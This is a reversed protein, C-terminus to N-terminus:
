RTSSRQFELDMGIASTFGGELNVRFIHFRGDSRLSAKGTEDMSQANKFVGTEVSKGIAAVQISPEVSEVIPRASSVLCRNGPTLEKRGTELTSDLPTGTFDCLRNTANYAGIRRAGYSVIRSDFSSLGPTDINEPDAATAPSDLNVGIPASECLIEAALDGHSWRDLGWDYIILKNPMGSVNGSGPYLVWIRQNDPDAVASVRDFYASDVDSLFSQDVKGRGIARSASYDFLNFGDESLYFVQRGFPICLGPILAGRLPDVKNLQFVVDGGSYDARWISREQFIAGVESGSTVAQVAGGDGELVQRDSQVAVAASTGLEPWNFPDAIASWHIANEAQGNVGDFTNGLMVFSGVVGVHSARPAIRTSNGLQAFATSTGTTYYQSEDNPNVAIIVDGFASFEWRSDGTANYAGGTARTVDSTEDALRYLKTETGAFNYPNGSRDVVAISGRARSNLATFGSVESLGSIGSYGVPDTVTNRAITLGPNASSPLDPLYEGFAIRQSEKAM